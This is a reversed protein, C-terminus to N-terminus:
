VLRRRLVLVMLELIKEREYGDLTMKNDVAKAEPPNDAELQNEIAQILTEEAFAEDDDHDHESM